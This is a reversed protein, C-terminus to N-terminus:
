IPALSRDCPMNYTNGCESTLLPVSIKRPVVRVPRSQRLLIKAPKTYINRTSTNDNPALWKSVNGWLVYNGLYKYDIIAGTPDRVIFSNLNWTKTALSRINDTLLINSQNPYAAYRWKGDITPADDTFTFWAKSQIKILYYFDNAWAYTNLWIWNYLHINLNNGIQYNSYGPPKSTICKAERDTCGPIYGKEWGVQNYHKEYNSVDQGGFLDQSGGNWIKSGLTKLVGNWSPPWYNRPFTGDIYTDIETKYRNYYCTDDFYKGEIDPYYQNQNTDLGDCLICAEESLTTTFSPCTKICKTRDQSLVEDHACADICRTTDSPDPIGNICSDYCDTKQIGNENTTIREGYLSCNTMCQPTDQSDNYQIYGYQCQLTPPTPINLPFIPPTTSNTLDIIEASSRGVYYMPNTLSRTYVTDYSPDKTYYRNVANTPKYYLNNQNAVINISSIKSKEIIPRNVYIAASNTPTNTAYNSITELKVLPTDISPRTPYTYIIKTRSNSRMNNFDSMSLIYAEYYMSLYIKSINIVTYDFGVFFYDRLLRNDIPQYGPINNPIDYKNDKYQKDDIVIGSTLYNSDTVCMQVGNIIQLSASNGDEDAICNSYDCKTYDAVGNQVRRIYDPPCDASCQGDFNSNDRILSYGDPCQICQKINYPNVKSNEPCTTYCTKSNLPNEVDDRSCKEYCTTPNSTSYSNTNLPCVNTTPNPSVMTTAIAITNGVSSNRLNQPQLVINQYNDRLSVSVGSSYTDDGSYFIIDTIWYENKLDLEFWSKINPGSGGPPFDIKIFKVYDRNFGSLTNKGGTYTGETGTGTSTTVRSPYAIGTLGLAVNRGLADIVVLQSFILPGARQLRVYRAKKGIGFRPMMFQLSETPFVAKSGDWTNPSLVTPATLPRSNSYYTCSAINGGCYIYIQKIYYQAGLDVEWFPSQGSTKFVSDCLGNVANYAPFIEYSSVTPKGIAVNVNNIDIAVVQSIYMTKNSIGDIHIFRVPRASTNDRTDFNLEEYTIPTDIQTDSSSYETPPSAVNILIPGTTITGLYLQKIINRDTDYLTIPTHKYYAKVANTPPTIKVSLIPYEQLLDIEWRNATQTIYKGKSLERGNIDIISVSQIQLITNGIMTNTGVDYDLSTGGSLLIGPNEISIYRAYVVSNNKFDIVERPLNGQLTQEGLQINNANFLTILGGTANNQATSANYYIVKDIERDVGLDIEVFQSASPPSPGSYFLTASCKYRGDVIMSTNGPTNIIQKNLAVNIGNIDQVILQSIQIRTGQPNEYKVYRVGAIGKRPTIPIISYSGITNTYTESTFDGAMYNQQLLQRQTNYQLLRMGYSLNQCCDPRNNYIIKSIRSETNLTIEAYADEGASQSKYFSQTNLFINGIPYSASLPASSSSTVQASTIINTPTGTAGYANINNIQLFSDASYGSGQVRIYKTKLSMPNPSPISIRERQETYAEITYDITYQPPPTIIVLEIPYTYALDMEVWVPTTISTGITYPAGTNDICTKANAVDEGTDLSLVSVAAIQLPTTDSSLIRIYRVRNSAIVQNYISDLTACTNNTNTQRFDIFERIPNSASELVKSALIPNAYNTDLTQLSIKINNIDSNNSGYSREMFIGIVESANILPITFKSDTTGTSYVTGIPGNTGSTIVTVSKFLQCLGMTTRLSNFNVTRLTNPIISKYGYVTPYGTTGSANTAGTDTFKELILSSTLKTWSNIPWNAGLISARELQAPSAFTLNNDTVFAQAQASTYQATASATAYIQFVEPIEITISNVDPTGCSKQVIAVNPISAYGRAFPSMYVLTEGNVLTVDSTLIRTSIINNNTNYLYVVSDVLNADGKITIYSITVGAGDFTYSQSQFIPGIFPNSVLTLLTLDDKYIKIQSITYGLGASDIRISKALIGNQPSAIPIYRVRNQDSDSILLRGNIPNIDLTFVNTIKANIALMNDRIGATPIIPDIFDTTGNGIITILSTPTYCKIRAGDVFYLTNASDVTLGCPAILGEISLITKQVPGTTNIPITFIVNGDAVYLKDSNYSVAISKPSTLTPNTFDGYVKTIRNYIDLKFIMNFTTDLYYLNNYKDTDLSIVNGIAVNKGLTGNVPVATATKTAAVSTGAVTTILYENSDGMKLRRICYNDAIYILGTPSIAIDWPLRIQSLTALGGDGSYGPNPATGAITRIFGTSSDIMRICNNDTDAIFINGKSDYRAARPGNLRASQSYSGDGSFGEIGTGAMPYVVNEKLFLYFPIKIMVCSTPTIADIVYLTGQSDTCVGTPSMLTTTAPLAGNIPYGSNAQGVYPTIIDTDLDYQRVRNNNKGTTTIYLSNESSSFCLDSIKGIVTALASTAIDGTPVSSTRFDIGALPTVVNTISTPGITLSVKYIIGNIGAAYLNSSTDMCLAIVPVPITKVLKIKAYPSTGSVRIYSITTANTLSTQSAVEAFFLYGYQHACVANIFSFVPNTAIPIVTIITSTPIRVCYLLKDVTIYIYASNYICMNYTTGTYPFEVIMTIINNMNVKYICKDILNLFYLNGEDDIVINTTNFSTYIFDKTTSTVVNGEITANGILQIPSYRMAGTNGKAYVDYSEPIIRSIRNTESIFLINNQGMVILGPRIPAWKAIANEDAVTQGTVGTASFGAYVSASFYPTGDPYYTTKFQVIQNSHSVYITNDIGLAIAVPASLKITNADIPTDVSRTNMLIGTSDTLENTVPYLIGTKLDVKYLMSHSSDIFYLVNNTSDFALSKPLGLVVNIAYQQSTIPTSNTQGDIGIIITHTQSDWKRITYGYIYYINSENICLSTIQTSSPLTFILTQSMPSTLPCRYVFSNTNTAGITAVYYNNVTTYMATINNAISGFQTPTVLTNTNSITFIPISGSQVLQIRAQTNLVSITETNNIGPTTRPTSLTPNPGAALTTTNWLMPPRNSTYTLARKQSRIYLRRISANGQDCVLYDGTKVHYCGMMPYLLMSKTAPNTPDQYSGGQGTGAFPIVSQDVPSVYYLMNGLSDTIFLTKTTPDVKIDMPYEFSVNLKGIGGVGITQNTDLMVTNIKYAYICKDNSCAIYLYDTSNINYITLGTPFNVQAIFTIQTNGGIPIRIIRGLSTNESVYLVQLAPFVVLGYPNTVTQSIKTATIPATTTIRLVRNNGSDAVYLVNEFFVIGVPLNLGTLDTKVTNPTGFFVTPTSFTSTAANYLSKYIVHSLYDTIYINGASDETICAPTQVATTWSSGIDQMRPMCFESLAMANVPPKRFDVYYETLGSRELISESIVNQTSDLLQIRTGKNRAYNVNPPIYKVGIINMTSPFRAQWYEYKKRESIYCQNEPRPVHFFGGVGDVANEPSFGPLVNTAFVDTSNISRLVNDGTENFVMLQSIQIYSNLNLVRVYNALTGIQPSNAPAWPYTYNINQITANVTSLTPISPIRPPTQQTFSIPSIGALYNANFFTDHISVGVTPITVVSNSDAVSIRNSMNPRIKQALVLDHNGNYM